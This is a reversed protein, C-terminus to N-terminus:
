LRIEVEGDESFEDRAPIALWEATLQEMEADTLSRRMHLAIGRQTLVSPEQGVGDLTRLLLRKAERITGQGWKNTLLPGSHRLWAISAHWVPRGSNVTLWKNVTLIISWPLSLIRYPQVDGNARALPNMIAVRQANTM